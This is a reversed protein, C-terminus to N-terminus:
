ASLPVPEPGQNRYTDRFARILDLTAAGEYSDCGALQTWATVAVEFPMDPNPFMLVGQPSEDFVGKLALQDEEPLGPSYHIEIRGHELSHVARTIPPFNLYAGDALAGSATESPNGYHDGSTPPNTDYGPDKDENLFHNNGENPLDLRLECGAADAADALVATRPEPPPTGERCDPEMEDPVAGLQGQIHAQECTGSTPDDSGGGGSGGGAIVVVVGAVIAAVLVGAVAYGLYLRRREAAAAAQQAALREQRIREREEKRTTM